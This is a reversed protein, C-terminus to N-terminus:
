AYNKAQDEQGKKFAEGIAEVEGEEKEEEGRKPAVKGAEEAEAAEEENGM